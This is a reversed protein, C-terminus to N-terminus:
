KEGDGTLSSLLGGRVNLWLFNFVSKTQDREIESKTGERFNDPKNDSDTKIFLNAIASVLKNKKKGNKDMVKVKFNEYKIRMDVSSQRFNGDITFYTKMLEGDFRVNLNPESFPNMDQAPMKGVDAKFVFHDNTDNVDFYWNVEIPTSQMFLADIDLTTKQPPKYTNSVNKLTANLKSFMISGASNQPKIKETYKITANKLLVENLTLNFPLNRLMTGYMPKVSMDDHVLKNRYIDLKPHYFLVEDAKFFFLSDNKYGFEQHKLILSDMELGFHDREKVLMQTLEQKSYKTYLKLTKFISANQTIKATSLQINEYESLQYKLNDFHVNYDQFVFPIQRKVTHSDLYVHMVNATFNETKLLLSDSESNRISLQGSQINIRGISIERELRPLKSYRDSDNKISSDQYYLMSPRKFQVSEINIKDHFLYDGYELGNVVLSDMSIKVIIRGTANALNTINPKIVVVSGTASNVEIREYTMKITAPLSDKLFGEIKNNLISNSISVGVIAMVVVSVIVLLSVKLLKSM